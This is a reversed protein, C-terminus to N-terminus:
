PTGRTVRKVREILPEIRPTNSPVEWRNGRSGRKGDVKVCGPIMGRRALTFAQTYSLGTKRAWERVSISPVVPSPTNEKTATITGYTPKSHTALANATVWTFASPKYALGIEELEVNEEASGPQTPKTPATLRRDWERDMLYRIAPDMQTRSPAPRGLKEFQEQDTADRRSMWWALPALILTGIFATELFTM